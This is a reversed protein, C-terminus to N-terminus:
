EQNKRAERVRDIVDQEEEREISKFPNAERALLAQTLKQTDEFPEATRLSPLDMLPHAGEEVYYCGRSGDICFVTVDICPIEQPLIFTKECFVPDAIQITKDGLRYVVGRERDAFTLSQMWSLYHQFHEREMAFLLYNWDKIGGVNFGQFIPRNFRLSLPLVEKNYERQFVTFPDRGCLPVVMHLLAPTYFVYQDSLDKLTAAQSLRLRHLRVREEGFKESGEAWGIKWPKM